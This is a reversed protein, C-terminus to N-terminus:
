GAARVKHVAVLRSNLRFRRDNQLGAVGHALGKHGPVPSQVAHLEPQLRLRPARADEAKVEPGVGLGRGVQGHRLQRHLRDRGGAEVM